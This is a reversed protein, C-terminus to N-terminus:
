SSTTTPPLDIDSPEAGYIRLDYDGRRLADDALTNIRERAEGSESTLDVLVEEPRPIKTNKQRTRPSITAVTQLTASSVSQITKVPLNTPLATTTVFAPQNRSRIEAMRREVEGQPLPPEGAEIRLRVGRFIARAKAVTKVDRRRLEVEYEERRRQEATKNAEQRIDSVQPQLRENYLM